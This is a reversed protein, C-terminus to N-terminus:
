VVGEGKFLGEQNVEEPSLKVLHYDNLLSGKSILVGRAEARNKYLGLWRYSSRQNDRAESWSDHFRLVVGHWDDDMAAIERKHKAIEGAVDSSKQQLEELEKTLRGIEGDLVDARSGFESGLMDIQFGGEFKYHIECDGEQDPWYQYEVLMGSVGNIVASPKIDYYFYHGDKVWSNLGLYLPNDKTRGIFYEQAEVRLENVLVNFEEDKGLVEIKM